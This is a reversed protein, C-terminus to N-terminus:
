NAKWHTPFTLAQKGRERLYRAVEESFGHTVVVREAATAEIASVLGHWDVHDSLIFGRDVAKQRRANRLLMWGSAMGTSSNGLKRLWTTNEVSPPALVIAKGALESANERTVLVNPPLKVGAAEYAPLMAHINRHVAIPGQAPDLHALLRQAKGLTYTFLVSTVRRQQNGAWWRHIAAATDDTEPWRYVPLGFTSETMFTHCRIPEFPLCTPDAQTKYDGSVVWVEGQYEVRVQASGLIHGAPHLSVRVGRYDVTEGYRVGQILIRKGLRIQLIPVSEHVAL